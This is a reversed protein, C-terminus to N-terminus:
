AQLAPSDPAFPKALWQRAEKEEEFYRSPYGPAHVDLFFKAILRDVGSPGVLALASVNLRTAFARLADRSLSAMGNLQVLMPRCENPSLEELRVLLNRADETTVDLRPQWEVRILSSHDCVMVFRDPGAKDEM